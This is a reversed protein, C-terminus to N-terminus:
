YNNVVQTQIEYVIYDEIKFIEELKRSLIKPFDKGSVLTSSINPLIISLKTYDKKIVLIGSKAPNLDEFKKDLINRSTIIDIRIKIKELDSLTLKEFRPDQLSFVANQILETALNNELEVVNGSSGVINGNKYLTVFVTGKKELLSNDTIIIENKTPITGNTLYYEIVQKVVNIM